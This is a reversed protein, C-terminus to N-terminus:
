GGHGADAGFSHDQRSRHFIAWFPNVKKMVRFRTGTGISVLMMRDEGEPWECRYAPLTAMRYLLFAPNNYPTVGGDEFVAASKLTM